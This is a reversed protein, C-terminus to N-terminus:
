PAKYLSLDQLQSTQRQLKEYLEQQFHPKDLDKPGLVTAPIQNYRYIRIREAAQKEQPVYDIVACGYQPLTFSPNWIENKGNNYVITAQKYFFPIGYKDLLRGIRAENDSEYPPELNGLQSDLTEVEAKENM